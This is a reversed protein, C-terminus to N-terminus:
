WNRGAWTSVSEVNADWFGDNSPVGEIFAVWVGITGNSIQAVARELGSSGVEMIQIPFFLKEEGKPIELVDHVYRAGGITSFSFYVRSGALTDLDHKALGYKGSGRRVIATRFLTTYIDQDSVAYVDVNIITESSERNSIYVLIGEPLNKTNVHFPRMNLFAIIAIIVVGSIFVTRLSNKFRKALPMM